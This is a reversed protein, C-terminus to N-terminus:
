KLHPEVAHVRSSVWVILLPEPAIVVCAHKDPSNSYSYSNAHTYTYAHAHSDVHAYAHTISEGDILISGLTSEEATLDHPPLRDPQM